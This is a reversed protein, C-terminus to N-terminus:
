FLDLHGVHPPLFFFFLRCCTTPYFSFSLVTISQWCHSTPTIPKLAQSLSCNDQILSSPFMAKRLFLFNGFIPFFFHTHTQSYTRQLVSLQFDKKTGKGLQSGLGPFSSQLSLRGGSSMFVVFVSACWRACM